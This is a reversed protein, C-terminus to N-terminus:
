AVPPSYTLYQSDGLADAFHKPCFVPTHTELTGFYYGTLVCDSTNMECKNEDSQYVAVRHVEDADLTSRVLLDEFTKIHNM